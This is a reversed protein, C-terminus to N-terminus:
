SIGISIGALDVENDDNQNFYNQELVHSFVRPNDEHIEKSDKEDVDPNRDELVDCITDDDQYQGEEVGYKGPDDTSRSRSRLGEEDDYIEVRLSIQNTLTNRAESPKFPLLMKYRNDSLS